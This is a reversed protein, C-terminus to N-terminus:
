SDIWEKWDKFMFEFGKGIFYGSVLMAIFFLNSGVSYDM